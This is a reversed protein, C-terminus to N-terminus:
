DAERTATSQRRYRGVADINLERTSLRLPDVLPDVPRPFAVIRSKGCTEFAPAFALKYEAKM